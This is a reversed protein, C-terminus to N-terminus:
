RATSNHEAAISSLHINPSAKDPQEARPSAAVTECNGESTSDPHFKTRAHLLAPWGLTARASDRKGEAAESSRSTAEIMERPQM